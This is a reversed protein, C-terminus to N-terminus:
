AKEVLRKIRRRIIATYCKRCFPSLLWRVCQVFHKFGYRRIRVIFSKMNGSLYEWAIQEFWWKESYASKSLPVSVESLFYNIEEQKKEDPVYPAFDEGIIVPVVDYAELGAKSLQVSLIISQNTRKNSKGMCEKPNFRFQFNGLSYAILGHKYEEIGQIVHPHHGLIVTAGNDILKYALRIQDPSPYFVKEIGWHLSVISLDCLPELRDLDEIIAAEDVANITLGSQPDLFGRGFYGLFGVRIGKREVIAWSETLTRNKVGVFSLDHKKLIELTRNCGEIGLDMIHNNAVNLVDFGTQKLYRVNAPLTHLVVAKAAETGHTSLVTELNGFLIDKNALAQQVLRFPNANDGTQLFVDGIALLRASSMKPGREKGTIEL